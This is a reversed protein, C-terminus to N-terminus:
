ARLLNLPAFRREFVGRANGGWWQEIITTYLSRYDIVPPPGSIYFVEAGPMPEGLLGGRVRGGMVLHTSAWGHHTGANENEVPSRGFEDYTSVLTNQWQGIEIMGDRLAALGGALRALANGHEGCQVQGVLARLLGALGNRRRGRRRCGQRHGVAAEIDLVQDAADVAHQALVTLQQSFNSQLLPM